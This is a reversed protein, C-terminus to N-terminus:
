LGPLILSFVSGEGVRSQCTVQGDHGEAVHRVLALGLGVGRTERVWENGIRYFPTFILAQQDEPIGPGQDRVSFVLNRGQSQVKVEILGKVPSFKIANDLLNIVARQVAAADMEVDGEDVQFECVLDLQKEAAIPKMLDCTHMILQGVDVPEKEYSKMGREIRSMDLVNDVLCSLRRTEMGMMRHYDRAKEPTMSDSDLLEEVMLRVSAIPTRLEHSVSAVFNSKMTNIQIQKLHGRWLAFLGLGLAFVSCVILWSFRWIRAVTTAYYVEPQVSRISLELEPWGDANGLQTATLTEGPESDIIGLGGMKLDVGLYLSQFDSEVRDILPQVVRAFDLGMFTSTESDVWCLTAAEGEVLLQVSNTQGDVDLKMYDVMDRLWTEEDWLRLAAEFKDRVPAWEQSSMESRSGITHVIQKLWLGTLATPKYSTLDCLISAISMTNARLLGTQILHNFYADGAVWGAPIGSSLSVFSFSSFGKEIEALAVIGPGLRFHVLAYDKWIRAKIDVPLSSNLVDQYLSDVRDPHPDPIVEMLNKWQYWLSRQEHSLLQEDPDSGPQISVLPMPDLLTGTDDLRARLLRGQDVVGSPGPIRAWEEQISLMWPKLIFGVLDQQKRRAEDLLSIDALERDEQVARMGTVALIMTPLLIM